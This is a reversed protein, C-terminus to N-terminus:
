NGWEGFCILFLFALVMPVSFHIANRYGDAGGEYYRERGKNRVYGALRSFRERINHNRILVVASIVAGAAFSAPIHRILFGPGMFSGVVAFLKIDGAGLMGSRFLLFLPLIALGIGAAGSLFGPVGRLVTRLGMGALMGSLCLRNPIRRERLDFLVALFLFVFLVAYGPLM